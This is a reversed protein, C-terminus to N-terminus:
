RRANPLEDDFRYGLLRSGRRGLSAMGWRLGRAALAAACAEVAISLILALSQTM